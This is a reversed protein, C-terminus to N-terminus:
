KGVYKKLCTNLIVSSITPLKDISTSPLWAVLDISSKLLDSSFNYVLASLAILFNPINCFVNLAVLTASAVMPLIFTTSLAVLTLATVLTGSAVTVLNGLITSM